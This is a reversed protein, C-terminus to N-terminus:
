SGIYDTGPLLDSPRDDAPYAVRRTGCDGCSYRDPHRTEECHQGYGVSFCGNPCAHVFRAERWPISAVACTGPPVDIPDDSGDCSVLETGCDPCSYLWPKKVRKSRQRYPWEQCGNPCALLYRAGNADAATEAEELGESTEWLISAVYCTGPELTSPADGVDHSVPRTGCEDCTYRWPRKVRETRKLYGHEFCDNPCALVYDADVSDDGEYRATPDAGARRAAAKWEDGHPDVGGGYVSLVHAHAVEHRVTDRWDADSDDDFLRSASRIEYQDGTGSQDVSRCEGLRRRFSDTVEVRFDGPSVEEFGARDLTAALEEGVLSARDTM